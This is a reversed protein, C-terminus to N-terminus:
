GITCFELRGEVKFCWQRDSLIDDDMYKLLGLVLGAM